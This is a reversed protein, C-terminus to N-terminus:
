PVYWISQGQLIKEVLEPFIDKMVPKGILGSFGAQQLKEVDNSMVNATMAIIITDYFEPDDRLMQLMEYGNYPHIQVDLFIVDPVCELAYVREMFNSSDEFIVMNQYNLVRTILTQMVKRSMVDDEVYLFTPENM